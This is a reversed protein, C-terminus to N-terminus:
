SSSPRATQALQTLRRRYFATAIFGGLLGVLVAIIVDGVRIFHEVTPKLYTVTISGDPNEARSLLTNSVNTSGFPPYFTETVASVIQPHIYSLAKYTLPEEVYLFGFGSNIYSVIFFAYGGWLARQKDICWVAGVIAILVTLRGFKSVGYGM